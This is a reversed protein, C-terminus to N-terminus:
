NIMLLNLNNKIELVIKFNNKTTDFEVLCADLNNVLKLGLNHKM